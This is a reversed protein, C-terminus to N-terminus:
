RNKLLDDKTQVKPVLYSDPRGRMTVELDQMGWPTALPNMRVMREKQDFDVNELWDTVTQRASGKNEPTVADELDLVLSDAALGLSKQPMKENAGPVFHVARRLRAMAKGM